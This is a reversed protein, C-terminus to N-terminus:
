DQSTVYLFFGVRQVEVFWDIARNSGKSHELSRDRRPSGVRSITRPVIVPVWYWRSLDFRFLPLSPRGCSRVTPSQAYAQSCVASYSLCQAPRGGDSM